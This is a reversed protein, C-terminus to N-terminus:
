IWIVLKFMAPGWLSRVRTQIANEITLQNPEFKINVKGNNDWDLQNVLRLLADAVADEADDECLDTSNGITISSDDEFTINLRCGDGYRFVDGYDVYARFLFTAVGSTLSRSFCLVNNDKNQGEAKFTNEGPVIVGVKADKSYGFRVMYKEFPQPPHGFITINNGSMRQIVDGGAHLWAIWVDVTWPLCNDPLSYNGELITSYGPVCSKGSEFFKLPTTMVNYGYVDTGPAFPTYDVEIYSNASLKRKTVVGCSPTKGGAEYANPTSDLYINFSYDRERLDDYTIGALGLATTIETNSFEVIGGVPAKAGIAIIDGYWVFGLAVTGVGETEIHVNISNIEGPMLLSLQQKTVCSSEVEDAYFRKSINFGMETTNYDIVMRTGSGKGVEYKSQNDWIELKMSNEGAKLYSCMDDQNFQNFECVGLDCIGVDNIWIRFWENPLIRPLIQLSANNCNSISFDNPLRFKTTLNIHNNNEGSSTTRQWGTLLTQREKKLGVLYARAVYGTTPKGPMYGTLSRVSRTEVTAERESIPAHEYITDNDILLKYGMREPIIESLYSEAIKQANIWHPSSRNGDALAWETGIRDLVGKKNLVEIADESIYHIRKFETKETSKISSQIGLVILFITMVLILALIADLTLVYGKKM